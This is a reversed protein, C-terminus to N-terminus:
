QVLVVLAGLAGLVGLVVLLVSIVAYRHRKIDLFARINRCMASPANRIDIILEALAEAAEILVGRWGGYVKAFERIARGATIAVVLTVLLRFVPHAFWDFFRGLFTTFYAFSMAINSRALSRGLDSRRELLLAKLGLFTGVILFLSLMILTVMTAVITTVLDLTIPPVSVGGPFNMTPVARNIRGESAARELSRGM